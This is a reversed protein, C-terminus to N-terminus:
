PCFVGVAILTNSTTSSSDKKAGLYYHDNASYDLSVIDGGTAIVRKVAYGERNPELAVSVLVIDNAKVSYGHKKVSLLDGDCLTPYM